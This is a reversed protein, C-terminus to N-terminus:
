SRHEESDVRSERSDVAEFAYTVVDRGEADTFLPELVLRVPTGPPRDPESIRSIIRIGECLEVVGFGFPVRGEYGPPRNLVTTCWRLVGQVSLPVIECGDGGCYPCIAQAPFNFRACGPCRGGLLRAPARGEPLTFLGDKLAVPM